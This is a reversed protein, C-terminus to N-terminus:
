KVVTVFGREDKVGGGVGVSIKYTYVGPVTVGDYSGDWCEEPNNNQYIMQGWRNFISITYSVYQIVSVKFCDNIGDGDPTFANPVFLLMECGEDNVEFSYDEFDCTNDVELLYNGLESITFPSSVFEGNLHYNFDNPFAYEARDGECLTTDNIVLNPLPKANVNSITFSYATDFCGNSVELTHVGTDSVTFNPPSVMGDLIYDLDTPLSYSVPEGPCVTSDSLTLNPLSAFDEVVITDVLTLDCGCDLEVWYTGPATIPRLSDTSGNDWKVSNAGDTSFAKLWVTDGRCIVTDNSSTLLSDPPPVKILSLDDVFLSSGIRQSSDLATTSIITGSRLNKFSTNAMDYFNGITIYQEGGNARFTGELMNYEVTDLIFQTSPWEVQPVIGQNTFHNLSFIRRKYANFIFAKTTDRIPVKSFHAGFRNVTCLYKTYFTDTKRYFLPLLYVEFHYYCSAVLSDHLQSELFTKGSSLAESNGGASVIGFAQGTRPKLLNLYGQMNELSDSNVGRSNRLTPSWWDLVGPFNVMSTDTGIHYNNFDEFSPNKILNQAVGVKALLMLSIGYILYKESIFKYIGQLYKLIINLSGFYEM